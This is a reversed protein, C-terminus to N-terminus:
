AMVLPINGTQRTIDNIGEASAVGLVRKDIMLYIPKSSNTGLRAAIKDLWETNNELPVVAEKGQEGIVALTASDVIGGKAFQPVELKSIRSIEVGPIYNIIDIAANLGSIFGNILGIAKELVWNIASKFAGSVADGITSGVKSFIGKIDEWIGTFFEGVSSFAEKIGKWAGSFIKSFWSGVASFAKKITNWVGTFFSGAAKFAGKIGNWAGNFVGSFWEGIGAFIGTIGDWLDQFFQVVAEVATEVASLITEWAKKVAAVIDDWHKICLVIIAIVAAIAAVIL